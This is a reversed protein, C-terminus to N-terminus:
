TIVFKLETDFLCLNTLESQTLQAKEAAILDDKAQKIAAKHAAESNDSDIM